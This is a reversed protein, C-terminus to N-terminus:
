EIKYPEPHPEWLLKLKDATHKGIINECSDSNNIM